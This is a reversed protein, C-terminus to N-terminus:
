TIKNGTSISRLAWVVSAFNDLMYKSGEPCCKIRAKLGLSRSLGASTMYKLGCDVLGFSIGLNRDCIIVLTPQLGDISNVFEFAVLGNRSPVDFPRRNSASIALPSTLTELCTFKININDM